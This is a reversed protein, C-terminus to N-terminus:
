PAVLLRYFRQTSTLFDNTTLLGGTGPLPSGLPLWTPDTLAGKYELQYSYGSVTPWALTFQSGVLTVNVAPGLTPPSNTVTSASFTLNDIALGQAKGTPDAMEWVLWLAASPPWNTIIQATVSLNTENSLATGDVAVGGTDAAVTPFSVNLAPLFATANTPFANTGTPDVVYYFALTKPKDSQRWVEGTFQLNISNFTNTTENLFRAGFATSGSSATALLGLSRNAGNPPGFSIIGGTTQDGDTAGFHSAVSGLGYWGALLPLGLGGTGGSAAIPATFDFPNALSYTVGNITVPNGANVSTAGPNPLSDFHQSYVSGAAAYPIYSAAVAASNSGGPTPTSFQQRAFVQGDPFDGYSCNPALNTYDLYDLIQPQGNYLRSLVVVGSTSGLTFGTHLEALTSLSTQGDAFIVLFQRPNITAGAPFAWAVLNTYSNALYLGNLSVNTASPNYLEIWPVRQGARNTIGTLNAAELENLWLPPFPTLSTFVTNTAGPSLAAPPYAGSWNGVRWNDQRPDLLQLSSGLGNAGAPWPPSNGYRVGAVLLNTTTAGSGPALLLSFGTPGSRLM